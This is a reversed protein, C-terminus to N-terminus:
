KNKTQKDVKTIENCINRHVDVFYKKEKFTVVAGNLAYGNKKTYEMINKLHEKM